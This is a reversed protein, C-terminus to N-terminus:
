GVRAERRAERALEQCLEAVRQPSLGPRGLMAILEDRRSLPKRTSKNVGRKHEDMRALEQEQRAITRDLSAIREPAERAEAYVRELQLRLENIRRELGAVRADRYDLAQQARERLTRNVRLAEVLDERTVDNDKRM